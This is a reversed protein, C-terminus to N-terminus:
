LFNRIGRLIEIRKKEGFEAGPTTEWWGKESDTETEDIGELLSDIYKILIDNNQETPNVKLNQDITNEPLVRLIELERNAEYLKAELVRKEAYLKNYIDKEMALHLRLTDNQNQTYEIQEKYYRFTNQMEETVQSFLPKNDTEKFWGM